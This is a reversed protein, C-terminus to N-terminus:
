CSKEKAANNGFSGTGPGDLDMMDNKSKQSRMPSDFLILKKRLLFIASLPVHFLHLDRFIHFPIPNVNRSWVVHFNARPVM